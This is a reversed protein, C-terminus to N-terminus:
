FLIHYFTSVSSLKYSQRKSHISDRVSLGVLRMVQHTDHPRCTMNDLFCSLVWSCTVQDEHWLLTSYLVTATASRTNVYYGFLKSLKYSTSLCERHPVMKTENPNPGTNQISGLKCLLLVANFSVLLKRLLTWNNSVNEEFKLRHV